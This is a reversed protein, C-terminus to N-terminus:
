FPCRLRLTIEGDEESEESIFFNQEQCIEEVVAKSYHKTFSDIWQQGYQGSQDVHFDYTGNAQKDFGIDNRLGGVYNQGGWGNGKIRINATRNDWTGNWNKLKEKKNGFIEIMHEKFGMAILAKKICSERTLKTKVLSYHSM